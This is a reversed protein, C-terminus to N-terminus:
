PQAKSSKTSVPRSPIYNVCTPAYLGLQYPRYDGSDLIGFLSEKLFAVLREMGGITGAPRMTSDQKLSRSLNRRHLTSACISNADQKRFAASSNNWCNDGIM